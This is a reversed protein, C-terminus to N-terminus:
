LGVYMTTHQVCMCNCVYMCQVCTCECMHLTNHSISPAVSWLKRPLDWRLASTLPQSLRPCRRCPLSHVVWLTRVHVYSSHALSSHSHTVLKVHNYASLPSATVAATINVMGIFLLEENRMDVVKKRQSYGRWVQAALVAGSVVM